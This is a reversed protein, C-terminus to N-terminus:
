LPVNLRETLPLKWCAAPSGNEMLMGISTVAVPLTMKVDVKGLSMGPSAGSSCCAAFSVPM